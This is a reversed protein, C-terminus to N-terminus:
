HVNLTNTKEKHVYPVILKFKVGVRTAVVHCCVNESFVRNLQTRELPSSTYLVRVDLARPYVRAITQQIMTQM